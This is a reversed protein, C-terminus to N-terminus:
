NLLDEQWAGELVYDDRGACAATKEEVCAQAILEFARTLADLDDMALEIIECADKEDKIRDQRNEKAM